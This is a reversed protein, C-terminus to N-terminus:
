FVFDRRFCFFTEWWAWVAEQSIVLLTTTPLTDVWRWPLSHLIHLMGAPRGWTMSHYKQKRLMEIVSGFILLPKVSIDNCWSNFFLFKLKDRFCTFIPCSQVEKERQMEPGCNGKGEVYWDCIFCNTVISVRVDNWWSSNTKLRWNERCKIGANLKSYKCIEALFM